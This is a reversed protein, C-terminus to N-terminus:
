YHMRGNASWRQFKLLLAHGLTLCLIEALHAEEEESIGPHSGGSLFGYASEHALKEDETLFGAKVLYKFTDSM